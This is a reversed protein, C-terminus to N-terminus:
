HLNSITDIIETLRKYSEYDGEKYSALAESLNKVESKLKPLVNREFLAMSRQYDWELFSNSVQFNVKSSPIESM